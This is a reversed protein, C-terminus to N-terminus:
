TLLTILALVLGEVCVGLGSVGVFRVGELLNYNKWSLHCLVMACKFCECWYESIFNWLKLHCLDESHNM